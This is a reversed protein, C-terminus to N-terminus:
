LYKHHTYRTFHTVVDRQAVRSVSRSRRQKSKDLDKRWKKMIETVQEDVQEAEGQDGSVKLLEELLKQIAPNSHWAMGGLRFVTQCGFDRKGKKKESTEQM